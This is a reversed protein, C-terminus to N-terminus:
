KYYLIINYEIIDSTHIEIANTQGLKNSQVCYAIAVVFYIIVNDIFLILYIM